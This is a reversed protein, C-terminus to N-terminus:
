WRTSSLATLPSGSLRAPDIGKEEMFEKAKKGVHIYPNDFVFRPHMKKAEMIDRVDSVFDM